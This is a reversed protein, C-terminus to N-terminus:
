VPEGAPVGSDLDFTHFSGDEGHFIDQEGDLTQFRGIAVGLALIGLVMPPVFPENREKHTLAADGMILALCGAAVPTLIPVIRLAWPLILGIAGLVEALGILKIQMASFDNVWGVHKNPLLQARSRLIKMSGALLFIAALLGQVGWLTINV